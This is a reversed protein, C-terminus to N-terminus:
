KCIKGHARAYVRVNEKVSDSGGIGRLAMHLVARNESDNIKEGAFLKARWEELNCAAAFEKLSKLTKQSVLQKSFDARLPGERLVFNELRDSEAKMLHSIKLDDKALKELNKYKLKLHTSKINM